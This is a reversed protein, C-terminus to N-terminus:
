SLCPVRRIRRSEWAFAASGAFPGLGGLVVVIVALRFPIVRQRVAALCLLSMGIWMLGHAWGLVATPGALGPLLWAALLAVYIASHTFSLTRLTKFSLM